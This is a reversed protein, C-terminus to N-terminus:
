DFVESHQKEVIEHHLGITVMISVVVCLVFRTQTQKM